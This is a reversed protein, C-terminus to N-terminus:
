GNRRVNITFACRPDPDSDPESDVDPIQMYTQFLLNEVKRDIGIGQGATRPLDFGRRRPTTPLMNSLVGASVAARETGPAKLTVSM